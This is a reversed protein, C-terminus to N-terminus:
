VERLEVRIMKGDSDYTMAVEMQRLPRDSKPLGIFVPVDKLDDVLTHNPNRGHALIFNTLKGLTWETTTSSM